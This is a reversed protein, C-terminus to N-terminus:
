NLGGTPTPDKYNSNEVTSFVFITQYSPLSIAHMVLDYMARVYAGADVAYM